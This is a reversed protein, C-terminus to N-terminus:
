LELLADVFADIAYNRRVKDSNHNYQTKIFENNININDRDIIYINDKNYFDYNVIDKNTTILKKRLGLMEITRMTLGIQKPHQIDIVVKCKSLKEYVQSSDLSKFHFDKKEIKQKGLNEFKYKYYLIKSPFYMYYNTKVGENDAWKQINKLIGYRDSHITGIFGIENDEGNIESSNKDSDYQDIYFLPRFIMNYNECDKKNFSLKKEFLPLLEKTHPKNEFSDWMYLVFIAKKQKEKLKRLLEVTITEPNLFIVYDFFNEEYKNIINMYYTNIKRILINRFNLRICIKEFTTPKAREDYFECIECKKQINDTIEKEYGFFRPAFLLVKKNRLDMM